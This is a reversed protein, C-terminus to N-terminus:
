IHIKIGIERLLTTYFSTRLNPENKDCNLTSPQEQFHYLEVMKTSRACLKHKAMNMSHACFSLLMFNMSM